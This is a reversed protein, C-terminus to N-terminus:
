YDLGRVLTYQTWHGVCVRVVVVFIMIKSGQCCGLLIPFKLYGFDDEVKGRESM